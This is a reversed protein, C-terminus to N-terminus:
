PSLYCWLKLSRASVNSSRSRSRLWNGLGRARALACSLVSSRSRLNASMKQAWLTDFLILNKDTKLSKGLLNRIIKGLITLRSVFPDKWNYFESKLQANPVKKFFHLAKKEEFSRSYYAASMQLSRSRASTLNFFSSRSRSRSRWCKLHALARACCIKVLASISQGVSPM